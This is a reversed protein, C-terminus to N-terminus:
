REQIPNAPLFIPVPSYYFMVYVFINTVGNTRDVRLNFTSNQPINVYERKDLYSDFAASYYILPANTFIDVGNADMTFTDEDLDAVTAHAAVIRVAQVTGRRQALTNTLTSIAAAPASLQFAEVMQGPLSRIFVNTFDSRVRTIGRNLRNDNVEVPSNNNPM